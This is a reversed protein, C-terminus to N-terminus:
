CFTPAFDCTKTPAFFPLYPRLLCTGGFNCRYQKGEHVASIHSKLHRFNGWSFKADCACCGLFKEGNQFVKIHTRHDIKKLFSIKCINCSNPNESDYDIKKVSTRHPDENVFKEEIKENKELIVKEIEMTNHLEMGTNSIGVKHVTNCQVSSFYLASFQVTSCLAAGGCLCFIVM